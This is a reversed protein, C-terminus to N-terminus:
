EVERYPKTNLTSNIMKGPSDTAVFDTWTQGSVQEYRYRRGTRFTVVLAQADYNYEAAITRPRSEQENPASSRTPM